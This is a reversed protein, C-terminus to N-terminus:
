EGIAEKHKKALDEHIIKIRKEIDDKSIVSIKLMEDLQEEISQGSKAWGRVLNVVSMQANVKDLHKNLALLDDILAEIINMQFKKNVQNEGKWM